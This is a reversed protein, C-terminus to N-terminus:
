RSVVVEENIEFIHKPKNFVLWEFPHGKKKIYAKVKPRTQNDWELPRYDNNVDLNVLHYFGKISVKGREGLVLGDEHDEDRYFIVGMSKLKERAEESEYPDGPLSFNDRIDTTLEKDTYFSTSMEYIEESM